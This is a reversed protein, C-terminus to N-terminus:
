SMTVQHYVPAPTHTTIQQDAYASQRIDADTGNNETSVFDGIRVDYFLQSYDIASNNM